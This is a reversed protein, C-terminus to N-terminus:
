SLGLNLFSDPQERHVQTLSGEAGDLLVRSKTSLKGKEDSPPPHKTARSDEPPDDSIM